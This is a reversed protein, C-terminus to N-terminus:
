SCPNAGRLSAAYPEFRDVWGRVAVDAAEASVFLNSVSSGKCTVSADFSTREEGTVPHTFDVRVIEGWIPTQKVQAVVEITAPM